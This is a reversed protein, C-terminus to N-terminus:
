ICGCEFSLQPGIRWTVQQSNGPEDADVDLERLRAAADELTTMALTDGEVVLYKEAKQEKLFRRDVVSWRTEAGAARRQAQIAGDPTVHM